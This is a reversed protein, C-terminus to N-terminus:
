LTKRGCSFSFCAHKIKRRNSSRKRFAGDEHQILTSPLGLRPLLAANDFKGANHPRKGLYFSLHPQAGKETSNLILRCNEKNIIILTVLSSCLYFLLCALLFRKKKALECLLRM